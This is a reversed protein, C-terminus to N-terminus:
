EAFEPYFEGDGLYYNLPIVDVIDGENYTMRIPIEYVLEQGLTFDDSMLLQFYHDFAMNRVMEAIRISLFRAEYTYNNPTLRVEISHYLNGDSEYPDGVSYTFDGLINDLSGNARDKVPIHEVVSPAIFHYKFLLVNDGDFLMNTNNLLFERFSPTARSLRFNYYFSYGIPSGLKELTPIIKNFESDTRAGARHPLRIVSINGAHKFYYPRIFVGEIPIVSLGSSQADQKLIEVAVTYKPREPSEVYISSFWRSVSLIMSISLISCGIIIATKSLTYSLYKLGSVILLMTFPFLFSLYIVWVVRDAFFILFIISSIQILSFFLLAENKARYRWGFYVGTFLLITGILFGWPHTLNLWYYGHHFQTGVPFWFMLINPLYHPLTRILVVNLTFLLGLVVIILSLLKYKKEKTMFGKMIIFLIIGFGTILGNPHNIYNFVVMVITLGLYGYHFDIYNKIFRTVKNDHSFKHTKTLANFAFFVMWITAPLLVAYMRITRFIMTVDPIVLLLVATIFAINRNKTMKNFIYYTSVIFIIGCIASVARGSVTSEGFLRFFVSVMLTHPWARTYLGPADTLFDWIGFRKEVLNVAANMVQFEDNNYFPDPFIAPIYAISSMLFLTIYYCHHKLNNGDTESLEEPLQTESKKTWIVIFAIIALAVAIVRYGDEPFDPIRTGYYHMVCLITVGFLLVTEQVTLASLGAKISKSLSTAKCGAKTFCSPPILLVVLCAISGVALIIAAGTRMSVSYATNVIEHGNLFIYPEIGTIKVNASNGSIEIQIDNIYMDHKVLDAFMVSVSRCLPRKIEVSELTVDFRPDLGDINLRLTDLTIFRNPTIGISARNGWQREFTHANESMGNGTDYYASFHVWREALINDSSFHVTLTVDASISNIIIFVPTSIIIICLLVRTIVWEKFYRREKSLTKTM